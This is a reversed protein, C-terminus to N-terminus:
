CSACIDRWDRSYPFGTDQNQQTGVKVPLAFCTHRPARSSRVLRGASAAVARAGSQSVGSADRVAPPMVASLCRRGFRARRHSCDTELCRMPVEFIRLAIPLQRGGQRSTAIIARCGEQRLTPTVARRPPSNGIRASTSILGPSRPPAKLVSLLCVPPAQPSPHVTYRSVTCPKRYPRRRQHHDM